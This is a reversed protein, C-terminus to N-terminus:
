VVEGTKNDLKVFGGDAQVYVHDGMVLPSAAFGFAPIPANFKAMLDARWREQGTAVELCVVVDRIGAV